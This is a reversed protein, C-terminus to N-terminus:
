DGIELRLEWDGIGWDWDVFMIGIGLRLGQDCIGIRIIMIDIRQVLNFNRLLLGWDGIGLGM